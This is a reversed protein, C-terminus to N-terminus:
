AEIDEPPTPAGFACRMIGPLQSKLFVASFVHEGGRDAFAPPLEARPWNDRITYGNLFEAAARTSIGLREVADYDFFLGSPSTTEILSEGRPVDFHRNIDDRVERIVIPWGGTSSAPPTHGHDATLVLVYDRVERDLFELTRGLVEDQSELVDAMERSEFSYEHGVIDTPKFNTVFLDPVADDGYAERRLMAHMVDGQYRVWAPDGHLELLEHGLWLGDAEGDGRDVEEARAALGPFGPLYSPTSYWPERGSIDGEESGILALHDADGGELWAGHGLMPMHWAKWALMGAEPQNDLARDVEDAYTTLELDRPNRDAMASTMEGNDRRMNIATVGHERPYSGTGLSGHTAPTISPSSGVSANVYSTGRRMIRALHPWRQPWRALVNNGVGDWVVTVILKPPDGDGPGLAEHLTTGDREPLRVGALEGVTPFVDTINVHRRVDGRAAQV